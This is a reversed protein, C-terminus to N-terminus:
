YNYKRGKWNFSDSFLSLFGLTLSYILYVIEFPLLFLLLNKIKYTKNVYSLLIIDILSKALFVIIFASLYYKNFCSLILLLIESIITALVLLATIKSFWDNYYKAKSVWRIRQSIFSKLSLMSSTSVTANKSFLYGIKNKPNSKVSHLLFMDDGSAINNKTDSKSFLEKKFIINAGNCMIPNNIGTSGITSAQLSLFEIEQFKGFLSNSESIQVPAIIFDCNETSQFKAIESLWFKNHICDADSAVILEYDANNVGLKLAEKKGQVINNLIKISLQSNNESVRLAIELSNDTSFDDILIVQYQAKPYQQNSLNKILTELGKEENRFPIIISFNLNNYNGSKNESISKTLNTIRWVGLIFASILIFYTCFIIAIIILIIIM